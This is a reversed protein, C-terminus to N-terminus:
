REAQPLASRLHEPLEYSFSSVRIQRRFYESPRLALPAPVAGNLRTTFYRVEPPLQAGYRACLAETHARVDAVNEEGTLMLLQTMRLPASFSPFRRVHMEEVLARRLPHDREMLFDVTERSM